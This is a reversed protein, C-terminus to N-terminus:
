ENSSVGKEMQEGRMAKLFPIKPIRVRNGMRIIPFPFPNKGDRTYVNITYPNCGLIPAIDSPILMDKPLAEIEQLTM